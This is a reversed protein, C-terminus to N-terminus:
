DRVDLFVLRRRQGDRHFVAVVGLLPPPTHGLFVGADVRAPDEEIRFRESTFDLERSNANRRGPAAKSPTATGDEFAAGPRRLGFRFPKASRITMVRSAKTSTSRTPSATYVFTSVPM